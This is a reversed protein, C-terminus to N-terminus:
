PVAYSGVGEDRNRRAIEAAPPLGLAARDEDWVLNVGPDPDDDLWYWDQGLRGAAVWVPHKTTDVLALPHGDTKSLTWGRAV